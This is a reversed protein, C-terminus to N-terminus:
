SKSAEYCHYPSVGFSTTLTGNMVYEGGEEFSSQREVFVLLESSGAESWSYEDPLVDQSIVGTEALDLIPEGSRNLYGRGSLSTVNSYWKGSLWVGSTATATATGDPQIDFQIQAGVEKTGDGSVTECAWYDAGQRASVYALIDRPGKDFKFVQDKPPHLDTAYMDSSFNKWSTDIEDGYLLRASGADLTFVMSPTGYLDSLGNWLYIANPDAEEDVADDACDAAVPDGALMETILHSKADDFPMALSPPPESQKAKIVTLCALWTKAKGSGAKMDELFLKEALVGDGVMFDRIGRELRTKPQPRKLQGGSYLQRNYWNYGQLDAAQLTKVAEAKEAASSGADNWQRFALWAKAPIHGQEAAMNMWYSAGEFDQDLIKLKAMGMQARVDGEFAWPRWELEAKEFDDNLYWYYGTKFEAESPRCILCAVTGMVAIAAFQKLAKWGSM